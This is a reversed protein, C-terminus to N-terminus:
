TPMNRVSFGYFIMHRLVKQEEEGDDNIMQMATLSTDEEPERLLSAHWDPAESEAEPRWYPPCSLVSPVRTSRRPALLYTTPVEHTPPIERQPAKRRGASSSRHLYAAARHRSPLPGFERPVSDLYAAAAGSQRLIPGAAEPSDVSTLAWPLRAATYHPHSRDLYDARNEQVEAGGNLHLATTPLSSVHILFTACPALLLFSLTECLTM